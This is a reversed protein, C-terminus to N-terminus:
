GEGSTAPDTAPDTTVPQFPQVEVSLDRVVSKLEDVEGKLAQLTSLWDPVYLESSVGDVAITAIKVGSELDPTVGVKEVPKQSDSTYVRVFERELDVASM